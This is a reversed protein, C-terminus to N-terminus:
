QYQKFVLPLYLMYQIEIPGARIGYWYGSGVTHSAGAPGIAFQGLTGHVVHTGSTMGERGGAAVVHWSLDYNPSSQALVTGVLLLSILVALMAAWKQTRNM